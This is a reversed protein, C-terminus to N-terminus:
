QSTATILLELIIRNRWENLLFKTTMISINSTILYNQAQLNIRLLMSGFWGLTQFYSWGRWIRLFNRIKDQRDVWPFLINSANLCSWLILVSEIQVSGTLNPKWWAWWSSVIVMLSHRDVYNSCTENINISVPKTSTSRNKESIRTWIKKAVVESFCTFRAWCKLSESFLHFIPM